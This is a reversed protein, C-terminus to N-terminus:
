GTGVTRWDYATPNANDGLCVFLISASAGPIARVSALAFENDRTATIRSIAEVVPFINPNPNDLTLAGPKTGLHNRMQLKLAALEQSMSNIRKTLQQVELENVM